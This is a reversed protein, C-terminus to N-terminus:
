DMKGSSLPLKMQDHNEFRGNPVDSHLQPLSQLLRSARRTWDLGSDNEDDIRHFVNELSELEYITRVVDVVSRSELKEYLKQRRAEITRQSVGLSNAIKKNPLGEMLMSLVSAERETISNWLLMLKEYRVYQKRVRAAEQAMAQFALQLHQDDATREVYSFAGARV